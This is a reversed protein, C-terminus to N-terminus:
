LGSGKKEREVDRGIKSPEIGKCGKGNYYSQLQAKLCAEDCGDGSFLNFGPWDIDMVEKHSDVAMEIVDNISYKNHEVGKEIRATLSQDYAKNLGTHIEGHTGGTHSTGEMCVM